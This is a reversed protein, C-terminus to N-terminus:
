GPTAIEDYGRGRFEVLCFGHGFPDALIAIRGWAHTEAARELTAGASVARAIADDVDQVVFDLHVPTWHREYARLARPTGLFRPRARRSRSSISRAPRESSSWGNTARAAAPRSGSPEPTSPSGATSITSTSAFACDLCARSTVRGGGARQPGSLNVVDPVRIRRAVRARAARMSQVRRTGLIARTQRAEHKRPVPAAHSRHPESAM